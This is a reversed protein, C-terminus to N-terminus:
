AALGQPRGMRWVRPFTEFGRAVTRYMSGLEDARCGNGAGWRM